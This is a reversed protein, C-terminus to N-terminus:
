VKKKAKQKEKLTLLLKSTDIIAVCADKTGPKKLLYGLVAKAINDTTDFKGNLPDEVLDKEEESSLQPITTIIYRKTGGRLKNGPKCPLKNYKSLEQKVWNRRTLLCLSGVVSYNALHEILDLPDTEKSLEQWLTKNTNNSATSLISLLTTEGQSGLAREAAQVNVHAGIHEARAITKRCYACHVTENSYTYTRKKTYANICGFCTEAVGLKTKEALLNEVIKLKHEHEHPAESTNEM